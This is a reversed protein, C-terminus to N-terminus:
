VRQHDEDRNDERASSVKDKGILDCQECIFQLNEGDAKRKQQRSVAV